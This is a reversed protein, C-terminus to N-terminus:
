TMRAILSANGQLYAVGACPCVSELIIKSSAGGGLQTKIDALYRNSVSSERKSEPLRPGSHAFRLSQTTFDSRRNEGFSVSFVAAQAEAIPVCPVNLYHSHTASFVWLLRTVAHRIATSFARPSRGPVVLKPAIYRRKTLM